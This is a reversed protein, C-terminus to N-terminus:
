DQFIKWNGLDPPLDAALADVKKDVREGMSASLINKATSRVGNIAHTLRLRKEQDEGGRRVAAENEWIYRNSLMIVLIARIDKANLFVRVPGDLFAANLDYEILGMEERYAARNEPIFISKMLTISLRDILDSFTPLYKRESM